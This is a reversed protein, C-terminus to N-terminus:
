NQYFLLAKQQISESDLRSMAIILNRNMADDVLENDNLAQSLAEAITTPEIPVIFGTKGNEIWENACSTDSQIPFAGTSIAELLSTSIGDSLSIGLYIRARMFLELMADHSLSKKPFCQIQLHCKKNIKSVLRMTKKNASYVVIEFDRIQEVVMQLASLAVSARGVFSEYGKILILSRESPLTLNEKLQNVPLGGANPFVEMFEGKFGYKTALELDRNCEASYFDSNTMLREIKKRHRPFNQFWYIDSGWNTSIYKATSSAVFQKSRSM